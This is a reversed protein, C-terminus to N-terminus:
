AMLSEAVLKAATERLSSSAAICYRRGSVCTRPDDENEEDEFGRLFDPGLVRVGVRLICTRGNGGRCATM